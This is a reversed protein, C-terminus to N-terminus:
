KEKDFTHWIKFNRFTELDTSMFFGIKMGSQSLWMNYRTKEYLINDGTGDTLRTRPTLSYILPQGIDLRFLYQKRRYIISIISNLWTEIDLNNRIKEITFTLDSPLENTKGFYKDFWKYRRWLFMTVGLAVSQDRMGFVPIAANVDLALEFFNERAYSFNEWSYDEDSWNGSSVYGEQLAGGVYYRDWVHDYNTHSYNCLIAADIYTMPYKWPYINVNPNIQFVFTKAKQINGTENSRNQQSVEVSDVYTYRSLVTTNFNFKERHFWNYIGYIRGTINGIKNPNSEYQNADENWRYRDLTGKYLRFRGGVKNRDLTAALQADFRFLNGLNYDDQTQYNNGNWGWLLQNSRVATGSAPFKFFEVDPKTTRQVGLGLKIGIPISKYHTALISNLYVDHIWHRERYTYPQSGGVDYQSTAGEADAKLRSSLYELDFRVKSSDSLYRTFGAIEDYQNIGQDHSWADTKEGTLVYQKNPRNEPEDIDGWWPFYQYSSYCFFEERHILFIDQPFAFVTLSPNSGTFFVRAQTPFCAFVLALLAAYHLARGRM